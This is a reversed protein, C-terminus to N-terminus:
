RDYGTFCTVVVRVLLSYLFLCIFAGITVRVHTALFSPCHQFYAPLPFIALAYYLITSFCSAFSESLVYYLLSSRFICPLFTSLRSLRRSHQDACVTNLLSVPIITCRSSAPTSLRVNLHHDTGYATSELLYLIGVKSCAVWVLATFQLHSTKTRGATM